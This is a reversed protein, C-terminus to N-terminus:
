ILSLYKTSYKTEWHIDNFLQEVFNEFPKYFQKLIDHFYHSVDGGIDLLHLAKDRLLKELRKHKGSM